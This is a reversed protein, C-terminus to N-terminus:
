KRAHGDMATLRKKQPQGVAEEEKGSEDGTHMDHKRSAGRVQPERSRPVFQAKGDILADADETTMKHKSTLHRLMQLRSDMKTECGDTLCTQWKVWKFRPQLLPLYRLQLTPDTIQHCVVLHHCLTARSSFSTGSECGPYLCTTPWRGSHVRALHGKYIQMTTFITSPDCGHECPQPAWDHASSVDRQKHRVEVLHKSRAREHEVIHSKVETQYSCNPTKECRYMYPTLDDRSNGRMSHFGIPDDKPKNALYAAWKVAFSRIECRVVNIRSYHEVFTEASDANTGGDGGLLLRDAEEDIATSDNHGIQGPETAEGPEDAPFLTTQLLNIDAASVRTQELLDNDFLAPDIDSNTQIRSGTPVSVSPSPSRRANIASATRATLAVLSTQRPEPQQIGAQLRRKAQGQRANREQWEHIEQETVPANVVDVASASAFRPARRHIKSRNAARANYLEQSTDGVYKETAGSLLSSPRHMLIRRHEDTTYGFSENSRPLHAIDRIAGLRTAHM